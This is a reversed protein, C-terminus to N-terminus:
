KFAGLIQSDFKRKDLHVYIQATKVSSHGLFDAIEKLGIGQNYLFTGCSHRLLHPNVSRQFVKKSKKELITQWRRVSIPFLLDLDPDKEVSENIFEAIREQLEPILPLVREKNGKGIIRVKGQKWDFSKLNLSLLESVRLGLYFTLLVMYKDRTSDMHKSLNHVQEKTLVKLIRKKKRGTQKPIEFTSVWNKTEQPVDPSTKILYLLNNVMARAVGNNNKNLFDLLSDPNLKFLDLKDLYFCYYYITKQNLGKLQLWKVWNEKSIM